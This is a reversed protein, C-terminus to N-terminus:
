NIQSEYERRFEDYIIRLVKLRDEIDDFQKSLRLIEDRSIAQVKMNILYNKIEKSIDDIIIIVKGDNMREEDFNLKIESYIENAARVNLLKLKKIQYVAGFNTSIDVGKDHASTRTDRYIKCAFKELHVKIIAFSFIEFNSANRSINNGLFDSFEQLDFSLKIRYDLNDLFPIIGIKATIFSRIQEPIWIELHKSNKIFPEQLEFTKGKVNLVGYRPLNRIPYADYYKGGIHLNHMLYDKFFRVAEIYLKRIEGDTFILKGSHNFEKILAFTIIPFIVKTQSKRLMKNLAEECIEESSKM